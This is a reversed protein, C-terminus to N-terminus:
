VSRSGTRLATRNRLEGLTNIVEAFANHKHISEQSESYVKIIVSDPLDSYKAVTRSLINRVVDEVFCPNEHAKYVLAGEADRKLIEYTPSSVSQEIIDILDDAEVNYAEPVEIQLSSVNRQNHTLTPLNTFLNKHRPNKSIIKDRVIEMACPCATMGTVEVGIMKRVYPKNSQGNKRAIANALLNYHEISSKGQYQRELYYDAVMRVDAFNAYDHRKLMERSILACLDEIGRVPHRVCRDLTEGVIEVNRSLHSGKRDPPLDVYLQIDTNLTVCRGDPRKVVVPKRVSRVGVRSLRFRDFPKSNQVDRSNKM